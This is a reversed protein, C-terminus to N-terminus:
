WWLFCFCCLVSTDEFGEKTINSYTIVDV